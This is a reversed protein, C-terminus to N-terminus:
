VRRIESTYRVPARIVSPPPCIYYRRKLKLCKSLSQLISSLNATRNKNKHVTVTEKGQDLKLKTGATFPNDKQVSLIVIRDNHLKTTLTFTFSMM